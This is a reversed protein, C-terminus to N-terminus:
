LRYGSYTVAVEVRLNMSILLTVTVECDDVACGFWVAAGACGGWDDGRDDGQEVVGSEAGALWGHAEDIRPQVSTSVFREVVDGRAAREAARASIELVANDDWM